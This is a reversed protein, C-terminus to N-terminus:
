LKKFQGTIYAATETEALGFVQAPHFVDSGRMVNM